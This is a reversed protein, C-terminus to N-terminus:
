LRLAIVRKEGPALVLPEDSRQVVEGDRVLELALPVNSPLDAFHDYHWHTIFLQTIATPRLGAELLRVHSGPGCDFVFVEGVAEVLYSSSARRTSPTPTGTGLLIVRM